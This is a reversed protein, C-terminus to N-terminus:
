GEGLRVTRDVAASRRLADMLRALRLGSEAPCPNDRRGARVDLFWKWIDPRRKLTIPRGWGGARASRVRLTGLWPGTEITGREGVIRIGNDWGSAHGNVHWAFVVGSHFRGSVNAIVDVPTGAPEFAARVEAVPEGVLELTANMLHTGTDFLYGGGSLAPDQRWTGLNRDRWAEELWGYVSTIRGIRGEGIWARARALLPSYNAPFAVMLTRRFRDRARIMRRADAATMVMPKELLVDMGAAFCELTQPLHLNHPTVILATDARGGASLFEGISEFFPPCPAGREQFLARTHARQAASVEVLGAVTTARAALLSREIHRRAFQGAGVILVSASM